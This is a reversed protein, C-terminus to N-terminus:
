TESWAAWRDRLTDAVAGPEAGLELRGLVILTDDILEIEVSVSTLGRRRRSPAGISVVQSWRYRRTGLPGRVQFGGEDARLRRRMSFAALTALALVIVGSWAVVRDEPARVVLAVTLVLATSLGCLAM